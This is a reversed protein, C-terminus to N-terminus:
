EDDRGLEEREITEPETAAATDWAQMHPHALLRELYEGAADRPTVGYTRFRFAVPAYMCDAISFPGALWPGAAAFRSRGENWLAEVRAIDAALERTLGVHRNRARCNMPMQGRLAAFGSHMEASVCRAFARALRDTPWLSPADEALYEGIALSDWIPTGDVMLVPVRRTPSWQAIADAFAPTDLALRVETHALEAHRVMLHARLSWSSYNKNGIVLTPLCAPTSPM